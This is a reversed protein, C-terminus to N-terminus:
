RTFLFYCLAGLSAGLPLTGVWALLIERVRRWDTERHRRLGIGFIGGTTVHTTSIPLALPSALGVLAAAVLNAGTADAAPMPTIKKSLTRAVRSAGLLGGLAMVIGILVINRQPTLSHALPIVFLAAAIKPTDNLGRAFSIAAGSFWHLTDSISWKAVTAPTECDAAAGRHIAPPAIAVAAAGSPAPILAVPQVADVCVCDRAPDFKSALLAAILVLLVAVLPSLLLPLVVGKGLIAWHVRSFGVALIGAGVLAGTLAHTTSIPLGFRSALLVTAGAGFVVACLFSAQSASAAGVLASGNFKPILGGALWLATVAGLFTFLTAWALARKYSTRDAGWLTAVGKFNDNAGNAFALLFVGLVLLFIM